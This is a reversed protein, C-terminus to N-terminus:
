WGRGWGHGGGMVRDQWSHSAVEEKLERQQQQVRDLIYNTRVHQNAYADRYDVSPSPKVAKAKERVILDDAYKEARYQRGMGQLGGTALGLGGGVVAGTLFGFFAGQLLPYLLSVTGPGFAVGLVLTMALGFWMGKSAWKATGELTSSVTGAVFSYIYRFPKWVRHGKKGALEVAANAQKEPAIPAPKPAPPAPAKTPANAM